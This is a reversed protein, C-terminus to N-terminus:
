PDVESWRRWAELAEKDRDAAQLSEALGRWAQVYSPNLASARRYMATAEALMGRRRYVLGLNACSRANDPRLALSRELSRAAEEFLELDALVM